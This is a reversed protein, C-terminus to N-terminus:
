IIVSTSNLLISRFVYRILDLNIAVFTEPSNMDVFQFTQDILVLGQNYPKQVPTVTQSFRDNLVKIFGPFDMTVVQDSIVWNVTTQDRMIFMDLSLPQTPLSEPKLDGVRMPASTMCIINLRM